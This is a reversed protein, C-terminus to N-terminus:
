ISDLMASTADLGLTRYAEFEDYDYRQQVISDTSFAPNRAAYHQLEWPEGPWVGLACFHIAGVPRGPDWSYSFTGHVFPQVTIGDHTMTSPDIDIDVGLEARATTIAESLTNGTLASGSADFVYVERSGRRLAEVLGLSDFRRGDTVYLWSTSSRHRSFAAVLLLRMKPQTARYFNRSVVRTWPSTSMLRARYARVRMRDGLGLPGTPLTPDLAVAILRPNPLWLGYQVNAIAYLFRQAATGVDGTAPAAAAGGLAIVDFLRMTPGVIREYAFTPVFVDQRGPVRAIDPSTGAPARGSLGVKESTFTFSMANPTSPLDLAGGVDVQAATCLVLHPVRHAFDSLRADPVGILTSESRRAVAYTTVLRDRYFAHMSLQNVDLFVRYAVLLAGIVLVKALEGGTFGHIAGDSIWRLMVLAFVGGVLGCGIWPLLKRRVVGILGAAEDLDPSGLKGLVLRVLGATSAVLALFGTTPRAAGKQSNPSANSVSPTKRGCVAIAANPQAARAQACAETNTFGLERAVLGANGDNNLGVDYLAAITVPVLVCFILILIGAMMTWWAVRLRAYWEGSVVVLLIACAILLVAALWALGSRSKPRGTALGTLWGRWHLVWGIGHGLVFIWGLVLLLNMLVAFLLRIAGDMAILHDSILRRSNGRLWKEEPSGPSYVNALEPVPVSNAVLTHSAALYAGGSVGCLQDVDNLVGRAALAQIAGLNFSAARIGGGSCCVSVSREDVSGIPTENMRAVARLTFDDWDM